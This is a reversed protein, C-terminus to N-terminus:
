FIKRGDNYQASDFPCTDVDSHHNIIASTDLTADFCALYYGTDLVYENVDGNINNPTIEGGIVFPFTTTLAFLKSMTDGGDHSITVLSKDDLVSIYKYAKDM